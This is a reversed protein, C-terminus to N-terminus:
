AESTSDPHAGPVGLDGEVPEPVQEGHPEQGPAHGDGDHALEEAVRVDVHRHLPIPSERRIRPHLPLRHPHEILRFYWHGPCRSRFQRHGTSPWIALFVGLVSVSRDARHFRTRWSLTPCRPPLIRRRCASCRNHPAPPQLHAHRIWTSKPSNLEQHHIPSRGHLAPRFVVRLDVSYGDGCSDAIAGTRLLLMWNCRRCKVQALFFPVM